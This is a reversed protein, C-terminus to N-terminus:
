ALRQAVLSTNRAKAVGHHREVLRERLADDVNGAARVKHVNALGNPLRRVEDAAVKRARERRVHELRDRVVRADAHVHAHERPAIRVVDDLRLELGQRARKRAATSGSARTSPMGDVLPASYLPLGPM